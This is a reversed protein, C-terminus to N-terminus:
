LPDAEVVVEIEYTLLIHVNGKNCTGTSSLTVPDDDKLMANLVNYNDATLNITTGVEIPWDADIPWTMGPNTTSSITFESGAHIVVDSSDVSVVILSVSKAKIDNILDAYPELKDNDTIDIPDTSGNISHAETSKLEAEDSVLNLQGELTTNIEETFWGSIWECSTFSATFILLILFKLTTRM